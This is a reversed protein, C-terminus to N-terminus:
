KPVLALITLLIISAIILTRAKEIPTEKRWKDAVESAIEDMPFLEYYTGQKKIQQCALNYPFAAVDRLLKLGAIAGKMLIAPVSLPPITLSVEAARDVLPGIGGTTGVFAPNPDWPDLSRAVACGRNLGDALAILPATTSTPPPNPGAVISFGLESTYVLPGRSEHKEARLQEIRRTAEDVTTIM